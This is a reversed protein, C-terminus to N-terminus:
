DKNVPVYAIFALWDGPRDPDFRGFAHLTEGSFPHQFPKTLMLLDNTLEEFREMNIGYKEILAEEIREEDNQEADMEVLHAALSNLMSPRRPQASTQTVHQENPISQNPAPFNAYEGNTLITITAIFALILIATTLAIFDLRALPSRPM